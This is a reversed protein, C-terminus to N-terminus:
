LRSSALQEGNEYPQRLQEEWKIFAEHKRQKQKAIRKKEKKKQKRAKRRAARDSDLMADSDDEDHSGNEKKM